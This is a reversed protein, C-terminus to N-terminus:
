LRLLAGDLGTSLSNPLLGIYLLGIAVVATMDLPPTVTSQRVGLFGLLLPVGLLALGIRLASTNFFLYGAKSRDRAVERTLYLNLGFNTFIDFWVFIVGAYFYLGADNPGLIRLMVLAFAMDIGRNFLNLLIPALSNRAIRQVGTGESQGVFRRWAGVGAILLLIIGSIFSAFLGIQFSAPSYVLRVTWDGAEPIRVSPLANLCCLVTLPQEATEGTGQPRIYARWGPDNSQSIFLYEPQELSVDVFFERGTDRTITAPSLQYSPNGIPTSSKDIDIWARPYANTNEWIRVAEDEYALTYGPVDSIDTQKYSVVYRVNLLNLQPSTLAERPDFGDGYATYIPAVRNFDRQVQPALLEMFDMYTKPIISEYGRIDDLGYRLTMNANLLHSTANTPDEYTTYRWDGPQAQLWEIAPPTFDLWAPDSAPNFGWSAIMLDAAILLVAFLEIPRVFRVGREGRRSSLPPLSDGQLDGRGQSLPNLPSTSKSTLNRNAFVFVAGAGVLMVALILGNVFQVSFFMRTDSFADPAKALGRWLADLAPEIQPYIVRSLMLGAGLLVGLALLRSGWSGGRGSRRQAGSLLDDLGFGALVAVCLTLAFVWRFPSHLQSIGPFGYYLLAYTPLGFM